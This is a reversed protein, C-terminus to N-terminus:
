PRIPGTSREASQAAARPGPPREGISCAARVLESHPREPLSTGTILRSGRQYTLYAWAWQLMVLVRNRFGILFFIHILLWALWAVFGSLRIRGPLEAIAASRGITAM